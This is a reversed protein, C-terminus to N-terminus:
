KDRKRNETKLTSTPKKERVDRADTSIWIGNEKMNKWFEASSCLMELCGRPERQRFADEGVGMDDGTETIEKDAARARRGRGKEGPGLSKTGEWRRYRSSANEM